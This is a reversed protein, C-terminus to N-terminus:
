EALGHMQELLKRAERTLRSTDDDSIERGHFAAGELLGIIEKSIISRVQTLGAIESELSQYTEDSPDDSKLARTSVKL